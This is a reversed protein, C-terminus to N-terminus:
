KEVPFKSIDKVVYRNLLILDLVNVAGDGNLDCVCMHIMDATILKVVYRNLVIVDLINVEGDWNADGLIETCKPALQVTLTADTYGLNAILGFGKRYIDATHPQIDGNVVFAGNGDALESLPATSNTTLDFKNIVKTCVVKFDAYLEELKALQAATLEVKLKAAIDAFTINPNEIVGKVATFFQGVTVKSMANNLNIICMKEDVLVSEVEENFYAIVGALMENYKQDDSFDLTFSATGSGGVVLNKGDRVPQDITVEVNSEVVRNALVNLVKVLKDKKDGEPIKVTLGLNYSKGESGPLVDVTVYDGATEHRVAVSWPYATFTYSGLSTNNEVADSIAAFDLLDAIVKNMFNSIGAADICALTQDAVNGIDKTELIKVLDTFEISYITDGDANFGAAFYYNLALDIAIDAAMYHVAPLYGDVNDLYLNGDVIIEGDAIEYMANKVSNGDMYYGDRLFAEIAAADSYTGALVRVDGTVTGTVGAGSVTDLSSDVIYLPANATISGNVTFGNLDLITTHNFTLNGDVNGLLMIAAPGQLEAATLDTFYNAAMIKAKYGADNLRAPDIVLAEFQPVENVLTVVATADLAEDDEIVDQGMTLETYDLGLVELLAKVNAGNGAIDFDVTDEGITYGFNDSTAVKKLKQYYDEYGELDKEVGMAALTNEFTTTNADSNILLEMYDAVFEMAVKNNLAAADNNSIQGSVIAATLYAEYVKEPLNLSINLYPAVESDVSRGQIPGSSRFWFYDKVANLGKAVTGMQAPVTPLNLVFQKESEFIEITSNLLNGSGNNGLDILKQSTFTTDCLLADILTQIRIYYANDLKVLFEEGNLLITNIEMDFVTRGFAGLENLTITATLTDGELVLAERGISDNVNRVLNDWNVASLDIDEVMTVVYEGAAIKNLDEATIAITATEEDTVIVPEEIGPVTYTIEHNKAFPLVLKTADGSVTFSEGGEVKVTYTKAVAPCEVPINETMKTGVLAEVASTDVDFHPALAKIQAVADKIDDETLVYDTAFKVNVPTGNVTTQIYKWSDDLISLKESYMFIAMKCGTLDFDALADLLGKLDSCNEVDIKSTVIGLNAEQARLTAAGKVMQDKLSTIDSVEVGYEGETLLYEMAKQYYNIGDENEEGLIEDLVAALDEMEEVIETANEYYFPLGQKDYQDMMGYIRLLDEYVGPRGKYDLYEMYPDGDTVLRDMLKNIVSKFEAKVTELEKAVEENIKEQVKADIEAQIEPTIETGEPIELEALIDETTIDLDELTLEIGLDSAKINDVDSALGYIFEGKLVQLATLKNGTSLTDLAAAQAAPVASLEHVWMQVKQVEAADVPMLTYVVNVSAIDESLGEVTYDGNFYVPENSGPLYYSEPIWAGIEEVKLTGQRLTGVAATPEEDYTVPKNMDNLEDMDSAYALVADLTENSAGYESMLDFLNGTEAAKAGLTLGAGNSAVLVLALVLALARTVLSHRRTMM